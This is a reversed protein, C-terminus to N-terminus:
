KWTNDDSADRLFNSRYEYHHSIRRHNLRLSDNGFEVNLMLCANAENWSDIIDGNKRRLLTLYNWIANETDSHLLYNTVWLVTAYEWLLKPDNPNQFLGERFLEIGEAPMDLNVALQYGGTYYAQTYDPDLKIIMWLQPLYDTATTWANGQYMWIHHYRDLQLWLVNALFTRLQSFSSSVAIEGASADGLTTARINSGIVITIVFFLLALILPTIIRKM